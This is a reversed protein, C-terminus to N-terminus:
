GCEECVNLLWKELTWEDYVPGNVPRPLIIEEEEDNMTKLEGDM